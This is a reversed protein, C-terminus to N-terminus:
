RIRAPLLDTLRMTMSPISTALGQLFLSTGVLSAQSPIALSFGTSHTSGILGSALITNAAGIQLPGLGPVQAYGSQLAFLVVFAGSPGDFAGQFSQGPEPSPSVARLAPTVPGRTMSWSDLRQGLTSARGDLFTSRYVNGHVDVKLVGHSSVANASYPQPNIDYLGAGGTGVVYYVVGRNNPYFDRRVTTREYIHDHGTFVADVEFEEFIPSWTQYVTQDRGHM